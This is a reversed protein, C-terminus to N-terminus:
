GSRYKEWRMSMGIVHHRAGGIKKWMVSRAGLDPLIDISKRIDESSLFCFNAVDFTSV